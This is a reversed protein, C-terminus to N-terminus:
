YPKRRVTDRQDQSPHPAPAVSTGRRLPVETTGLSPESRCLWGDSGLDHLGVVPGTATWRPLGRDGTACNRLVHGAPQGGRAAVGTIPSQAASTFV